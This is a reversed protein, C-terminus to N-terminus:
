EKGLGKRSGRRIHRRKRKQKKTADAAAEGLNGFIGLGVSASGEEAITPMQSAPAQETNPRISESRSVRKPPPGVPSDFPGFPFPTLAPASDSSSFNPPPPNITISLGRSLATTIVETAVNLLPPEDTLNPTPKSGFPAFSVHTRRLSSFPEKPQTPGVDHLSLPSQVNTATRVLICPLTQSFVEVGGHQQGSEEEDPRKFAYTELSEQEAAETWLDRYASDSEISEDLATRVSDEDELDDPKEAILGASVSEFGHAEMYERLAPPSNRDTTEKSTKRRETVTPRTKTLLPQYRHEFIIFAGFCITAALTCPLWRTTWFDTISNVTPM